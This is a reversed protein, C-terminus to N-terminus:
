ENNDKCSPWKFHDRYTDPCKEKCDPKDMVEQFKAPMFNFQEARQDTMKVAM